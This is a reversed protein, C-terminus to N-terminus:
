LLKLLKQLENKNINRFYGIDFNNVKINLDNFSLSKLKKLILEIDYKDLIQNDIKILGKEILIEKGNKFKFIKDEINFYEEPTLINVINYFSLNYCDIKMTYDDFVEKVLNYGKIINSYNTTKLLVYDGKNPIKLKNWNFKECPIKIGSKHIYENGKKEFLTGKEICLFNEPCIYLDKM